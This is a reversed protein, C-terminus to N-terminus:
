VRGFQKELEYKTMVVCVPRGHPCYRLTPDDDLKNAIDILEEKTSINGGKIAARCAVNHYIWDMKESRIDTKNEAIYSAMEIVSQEIDSLDLYQPASRVIVTGNGFDEVEFVCEKFMDLNNIVADYDNKNLIVTIPKLLIQSYGAGREKKLNEYIMREHAAHKDIIVIEKQNKEVIIYTNFAEGIYKLTNKEQQIIPKPEETLINSVSTDTDQLIPSDDATEDIIPKKHSGNEINRNDTIESKQENSLTSKEAEPSFNDIPNPKSFSYTNKPTESKGSNKVADKSYISFPDAVDSVNSDLNISKKKVPFLKDLEDFPNAQPNDPENQIPKNDVVPKKSENSIEAKAMTFPNQKKIQSFADTHNKGSFTINKRQDNNNLCTKISHYVADFIPRENFFRVEIKSPHVNVDIIEYSLSLHLVCAPYKGVMISGKCAEEIAAMATRSKVYRGNIFFNQMGRNPRANIPKSVYGQVKIGNLEYNVPLLGNAFDRGYVSYIASKLKSDGSTKLTQKGDRIFTFSIEPHALAEKDIVNAVANGESVDKKLFKMRAPINYFLDRVILTTGVPCGADDIKTEVGGEIEYTTGIDSSNHRTILQVKSVSAISSLAEGRFGLTAIKNLDDEQKIKSTAHPLFAKKVDDKLIGCGDDTVRMFTTGGNMIEVTINKSGADISNEIMEKIASAPREVVEGAAILEAVHKDLVNIVGM